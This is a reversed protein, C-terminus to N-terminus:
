GRFARYCGTTSTDVPSGNTPVPRPLAGAKPPRPEQRAAPPFRRIHNHHKPPNIEGRFSVSYVSFRHTSPRATQPRRGQSPSARPSDRSRIEPPRPKHHPTPNMPNPPTRSLLLKARGLPSAQPAAHSETPKPPTRSLPLKARGLPSAQPAARSENPQSTNPEAPAEGEWLPRRKPHPTPNPPNPPTRSLPLKARGFPAAPRASHVPSSKGAKPSM